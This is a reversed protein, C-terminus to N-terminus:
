PLPVYTEDGPVKPFQRAKWKQRAAQITEKESAVFNWHIHREEPLPAGGFLLLHTHPELRIPCENNKKSVLLNGAGITNECAQITGKV